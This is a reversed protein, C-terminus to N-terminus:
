LEGGSGVGSLWDRLRVLVQDDLVKMCGVCGRRLAEFVSIIVGIVTSVPTTNVISTPNPPTTMNKKAQEKAREIAKQRSGEVEESQTAAYIKRFEEVAALSESIRHLTNFLAVVESRQLLDPNVKPDLAKDDVAFLIKLATGIGSVQLKGWLRCKDCGVCDMIRSVNRFHTKFQEKLIVADEGTFFDGEDFGKGMEGGDALRLVEDLRDKALRDSERGAKVGSGLTPATAIDYARLYPAARAVARLLLVANFYVNSLREPHTALRSIFCDLNPAWEGTTQDLYDACIHISISAHLGSIVRYYVKKEECMEGEGSLPAKVMETGWGESLKSFAYGPQSSQAGQSPKSIGGAGVVASALGGKDLGKIGLSNAASSSSSTKSLESLSAESLGFCNEEYIARWVNHASDGAYGTFREPNLTLDVYQGNQDADDEVYCFDQEKFYCGSVGEDHAASTNIESLAKARWKEPIDEENAEEVGCNRNMCFGNEYWFPCEKFLDVKYHRFFPYTVLDHLAPFLQHNLSEVTEYLCHTSEIPGSPSCYGESKGELVNRAVKSDPKGASRLEVGAGLSSALASTSATATAALCLVSLRM